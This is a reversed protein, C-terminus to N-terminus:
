EAPPADLVNDPILGSSQEKLPWELPQGREDNMFWFGGPTAGYRMPKSLDLAIRQTNAIESLLIKLLALRAGDTTVHAEGVDRAIRDRTAYIAKPFANYGDYHTIDRVM